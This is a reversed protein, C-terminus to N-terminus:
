HTTRHSYQLTPTSLLTISLANLASSSIWEVSIANGDRLTCPSQEGLPLYIRGRNRLKWFVKHVYTNWTTWKLHDHYWPQTVTTSRTNCLLPTQMNQPSTWTDTVDYQDITWKNCTGQQMTVADNSHWRIPCQRQNSQHYIKWRTRKVIKYMFLSDIKSPQWHQSFSWLDNVYIECFCGFYWVIFIWM